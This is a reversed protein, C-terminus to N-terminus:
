APRRAEAEAERRRRTWRSGEGEPLRPRGMPWEIPWTRLTRVPVGLAESVETQNKGQAALARAQGVLAENRTRPM